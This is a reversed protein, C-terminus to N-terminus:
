SCQYIRWHSAAGTSQILIIVVLVVMMICFAIAIILVPMWQLWRPLCAQVFAGNSDRVQWLGGTVAHNSYYFKMTMLTKGVADIVMLGTVSVFAM